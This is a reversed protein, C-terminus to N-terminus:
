RSGTAAARSRPMVCGVIPKTRRASPKATLWTSGCTLVSSASRGSTSASTACANTSACAAVKSVRIVIIWIRSASAMRIATSPTM